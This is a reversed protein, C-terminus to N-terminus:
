AAGDQEQERLRLWDCVALAVRQAAPLSNIGAAAVVRTLKGVVARDEEAGGMDPLLSAVPVGYFDALGALREALVQRDGREYSGVVVAKWEGDSKQEVGDLSLGQETRTTRLKMGLRLGYETAM